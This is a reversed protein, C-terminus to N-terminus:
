CHCRWLHSIDRFLLFFNHIITHVSQKLWPNWVYVRDLGVYLIMQGSQWVFRETLKVSCINHKECIMCVHQHTPPFIQLFRIIHNRRCCETHKSCRSLLHVVNAALLRILSIRVMIDTQNLELNVNGANFLTPVRCHCLSYWHVTQLDLKLAIASLLQTPINLQRSSGAVIFLTWLTKDPCFELVNLYM